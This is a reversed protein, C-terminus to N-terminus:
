PEAELLVSCRHRRAEGPQAVPELTGELRRHIIVLDDRDHFATTDRGSV